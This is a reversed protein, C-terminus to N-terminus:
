IWTHRHAAPGHPQRARVRGRGDAPRGPYPAPAFGIGHEGYIGLSQFALYTAVAAAALIGAVAIMPRRGLRRGVLGTLLFGRSPFPLSCSSLAGAGRRWRHRILVGAGEADFIGMGPRKKMLAYEDVLPTRRNRYIATVIAVTAEGAAVAIVFLAISASQVALEPTFAGFAVIALNVANLMIEIAMLM